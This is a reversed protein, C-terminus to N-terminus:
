EGPNTFGHHENYATFLAEMLYGDVEPFSMFVEYQEDGLLAKVTDEIDGKGLSRLVSYHLSKPDKFTVVRGDNGEYEFPEPRTIGAQAELRAATFRAM